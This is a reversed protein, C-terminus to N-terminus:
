ADDEGTIEGLTVPRGKDLYDAVFRVPLRFCALWKRKLWGM